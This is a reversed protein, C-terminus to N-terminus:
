ERPNGILHKYPLAHRLHIVVIGAVAVRIRSMLGRRLVLAEQADPLFVFCLAVVREKLEQGQLWMMVARELVM